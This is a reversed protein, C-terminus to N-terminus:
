ANRNSITKLVLKIVFMKLTNGLIIVSAQFIADFPSLPEVKNEKNKQQFDYLFSEYLMETIEDDVADLKLEAMEDEFQQVRAKVQHYQSPLALETGALEAKEIEANWYALYKKDGKQLSAFAVGMKSSTQLISLLEAWMKAKNTARHELEKESRKQYEQAVPMAPPLLKFEGEQTLSDSEIEEVVPPPEVKKPMPYLPAVLGGLAEHGVEIAKNIASQKLSDSIDFTVM